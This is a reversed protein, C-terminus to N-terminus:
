ACTTFCSRSGGQATCESAYTKWALKYRQVAYAAIATGCRLSKPLMTLATDPVEASELVGMKIALEMCLDFPQPAAGAFSNISQDDDGAISLSTSWGPGGNADSELVLM